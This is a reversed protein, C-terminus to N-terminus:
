VSFIQGCAALCAQDRMSQEDEAPELSKGDEVGAMHKAWGPQGEEDESGKVDSLINNRRDEEIQL